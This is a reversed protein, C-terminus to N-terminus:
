HYICAEDFMAVVNGPPTGAQISHSPGLIYGGGAGLVKIRERVEERVEEVTGFPLTTQISVGGEFCLKDGYLSKLAVPDMGQADFQLAQLIDTGMDLLGPIAPMISGDTHYIVKAGFDHILKSIRAHHPKIRQEWLDLSFLLGSQGGIDDGTFVLDIKGDVAELQKRTHELYFDTVRSLVCEALEPELLLMALMNEFGIMYWSTEFPNGGRAMVCYKQEANVSEIADAIGSYDLWDTSPWNHNAVQDVSDVHGLPYYDIEDYCGAGYSVEKRVVGWMDQHPALTPGVWRPSIQKIDLIPKLYDEVSLSRHVRLYAALDAYAPPNINSCVMAIPVRDTECHRLALDVRENHSLPAIHVQM